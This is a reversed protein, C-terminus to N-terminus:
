EHVLPTLDIQDGEYYSLAMDDASLAAARAGAAVRPMLVFAFPHDLGFADEELCRACSGLARAHLTGHFFLELGARYHTVDVGLGAPLCYDRTGGRGLRTNLEKVDESYSLETPSAKIDDIAIKMPLGPPAALPISRM